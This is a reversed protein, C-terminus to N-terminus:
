KGLKNVIEIYQQMKLEEARANIQINCDNFIKELAKKDIDLVESNCISNIMKKRRQAFSVRILKFLLTENSVTYRKQKTLKIVASTVDPSPIFSENSVILEIKALALYEVMLTLVSYDKTKPLSVMRQAVEKQVMIVIESIRKSDQLLKFIIPTTIYYPLNAVVKINEYKINQRCEIMEIIEDINVKLIDENILTYNSYNSFRDNLIEIMKNDIEILVAHKVKELLYNTLNGLGPGIEIVLDNQGLNSINVIENLVTDDTLFNQGYRKMARINYRQLLEKTKSLTDHM